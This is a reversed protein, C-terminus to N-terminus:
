EIDNITNPFKIGFTNSIKEWTTYGCFSNKIKLIEDKNKRHPLSNVFYDFDEYRSLNYDNVKDESILLFSYVKKTGDIVSDIHRILQDRPYLWQTSTTLKSETRKAECLYIASETEIYIDPRSYGEFIYWENQITPNERILSLAEKKKEESGSFLIRRNQKTEENKSGFDKVCKLKNLNNIYWELISQKPCLGKEKKGYFVKITEESSIKEIGDMLSFLKNINGKDNEITDMLPIVRTKTSNYLGRIM